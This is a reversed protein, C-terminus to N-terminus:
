VTNQSLLAMTEPAFIDSCTYTPKVMDPRGQFVIHIEAGSDRYSAGSIQLFSENYVRFNLCMTRPLDADSLSSRNVNMAYVTTVPGLNYVASELQDITTQHLRGDRIGFPTYSFYCPALGSKTPYKRCYQNATDWLEPLGMQNPARAAIYANGRYMQDGPHEYVVRLDYAGYPYEPSFAPGIFEWEACPRNFNPDNPPGISKKLVDLLGEAENVLFECTDLDKCYPPMVISFDSQMTSRGLNNNDIVTMNIDYSLPVYNVEGITQLTVDEVPGCIGVGQYEVTGAGTLKLTLPQITLSTVDGTFQLPMCGTPIMPNSPTVFQYFFNYQLHAPFWKGYEPCVQWRGQPDNSDRYFSIFLNYMLGNYNTTSATKCKPSGLAVDQCFSMLYTDALKEQIAFVFNHTKGNSGKVSAEVAVGAEYPSGKTVALDSPNLYSVVIRKMQNEKVTAQDTTADALYVGATATANGATSVFTGYTATIAADSSGAKPTYVQPYFCDAVIPGKYVPADPLLSVKAAAM